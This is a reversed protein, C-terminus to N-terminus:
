FFHKAVAALAHINFGGEIGVEATMVTMKPFPDIGIIMQSAHIVGM